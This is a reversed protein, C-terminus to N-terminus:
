KREVIETQRFAEILSLIRTAILACAPCALYHDEFAEATESDLRDLCYDEALKEVEPPCHRFVVAFYHRSGVNERVRIQQM